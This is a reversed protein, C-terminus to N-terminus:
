GQVPPTDDAPLVVPWKELLVKLSATVVEAAAVQVRIQELLESQTTLADLHAQAPEIHSKLQDWQEQTCQVLLQGDRVFPGSPDAVLSLAASLLSLLPLPM